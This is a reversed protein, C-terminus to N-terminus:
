PRSFWMDKTHYDNGPPYAGISTLSPIDYLYESNYSPRIRQVLKGNNSGTGNPGTWLNTGSPVIFGAYVPNGTKPDMDTTYHYRRMDVWTEHAGWGYLAIYKQLMIRTLNMDTAQAPVIATNALYAAKNVATIENGIPILISYKDVLMDFNLSIANVYANRCETTLGKRLYAEAAIFQMESATMVPFEAADRFIYRGGEPVISGTAQYTSGLFSRSSDGVPLLPNIVSSYSPSYGKFTGNNNERLLYWCRPDFVGTFALSNVGSMLNAIYASQRLGTGANNVNARSSGLYNRTASIGTNQFSLMCNDTNVTCSLNAYKIVSDASYSSKNHIYAFSRALVGYVFKKWRGLDGKNFYFDSAAFKAPDMSGGTANLYNLARHCTVRVSDYFESQDNYDFQQRTADFAQRLIAEGYQNTLELMGWARLAWAAGVFDWKQEENGWDIIRNINAGQSFYYMGWINVSNTGSGSVGSMRDFATGSNDATSSQYSGWYQIYRGVNIIDGGLGFSNAAGSGNGLMTGIMAPLLQEVPQRVAANPNKYAEDIKKACSSIALVGILVAAIIIKFNHKM